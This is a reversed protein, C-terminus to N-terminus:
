SRPFFAMALCNENRGKRYVCGSGARRGSAPETATCAGGVRAGHLYVRSAGDLRDTTSNKGLASWLWNPRRADDLSEQEKQGSPFVNSRTQNGARWIRSILLFWFCAM